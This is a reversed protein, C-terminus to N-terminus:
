NGQKKKGFCFARRIKSRTMGPSARGAGLSPFGPTLVPVINIGPDGERVDGAVCGINAPSSM